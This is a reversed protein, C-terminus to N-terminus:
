EAAKMMQDRMQRMLRAECVTFGGMSPDVKLVTEQEVWRREEVRLMARVGLTLTLIGFGLMLVAGLTGRFRAEPTWRKRNWWAPLLMSALVVGLLALPVLMAVMSPTKRDANLLSVPLLFAAVVGIGLLLSLWASLPRRGAMVDAEVRPRGKLRYFLLMIGLLAELQVVLSPWAFPMGYFRGGLPTWRTLCFYLLIPLLVCWAARALAELWLAGGCGNVPGDLHRRILFLRILFLGMLGAMLISSLTLCWDEILLYDLQRSPALEAASPYDALAPLLMAALIGAHQVFERRQRFAVPDKEFANRRANWALVPATLARTAARTAEAQEKLNIQEYLEPVRLEAEKVIAAAMLVDILGFSDQALRLALTRWAELFPLAEATRGEGILLAAYAGAGRALNRMLVLDPMPTDAVLRLHLVLEPMSKPPGLIAVREALMDAMNRRYAPKALGRELLAMAEGLKARSKVVQESRVKAKGEPTMGTVETKSEVAQELLKAALVFDLRANDPDLVGGAKVETELRAYADQANTGARDYGALLYTLYNQFYVRSSPTAEWIARQVGTATTRAPNGELIIRKAAPLQHMRAPLPMPVGGPHAVDLLRRYAKVMSFDMTTWVASAGLLALMVATMIPLMAQNKADPSSM